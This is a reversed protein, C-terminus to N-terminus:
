GWSYREKTGDSVTDKIHQAVSEVGQQATSLLEMYDTRWDGHAMYNGIAKKFRNGGKYYLTTSRVLMKHDIGTKMAKQFSKLGDESFKNTDYPEGKGNILRRPVQAEMIFNLYLTVWDEYKYLSLADTSITLAKPAVLIPLGPEIVTGQKTLGKEVGNYAKQFHATFKPKGQHVTVFGETLLYQMVETLEM